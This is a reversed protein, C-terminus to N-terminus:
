KMNQLRLEVVLIMVQIYLHLIGLSNFYNTVCVKKERQYETVGKIVTGKENISAHVVQANVIHIATHDTTNLM